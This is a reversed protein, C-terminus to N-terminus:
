RSYLLYYKSFRIGICDARLEQRESSFFFFNDFGLLEVPRSLKEQSTQIQVSFVRGPGVGTVYSMLVQNYLYIVHFFITKYM